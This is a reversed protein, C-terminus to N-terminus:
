GCDELLPWIGFFRFSHVEVTFTNEEPSRSTKAAAPKSSSKAVDLGQRPSGTGAARGADRPRRSAARPGEARGRKRGGHGPPPAQGCPPM